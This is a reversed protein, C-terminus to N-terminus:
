LSTATFVTRRRDRSSAQTNRCPGPRSCRTRRAVSGISNRRARCQSSSRVGVGVDVACPAPWHNCAGGRHLRGAIVRQNQFFRLEVRRVRRTPPPATALRSPGEPSVATASPPPCSSPSRQWAVGRNRLVAPCARLIPRLTAPSGIQHAAECIIRPPPQFGLVQRPHRASACPHPPTVIM